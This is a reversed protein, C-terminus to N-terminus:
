LGVITNQSLIPIVPKITPPISSIYFSYLLDMSYTILSERWIKLIFVTQRPTLWLTSVHLSFCLATKNTVIDPSVYINQTIYGAGFVHIMIDCNM